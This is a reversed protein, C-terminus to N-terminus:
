VSLDLTLSLRDKISARKQSQVDEVNRCFVGFELSPSCAEYLRELWTLWDPDGQCLDTYRLFQAAQFVLQRPDNAPLFSCYQWDILVIRGGDGSEMFNHPSLDIHNVGMKFLQAMTPIAKCLVSLRGDPSNQILDDLTNYRYLDEIIVGNCKVTGFSRHEFYGYCIPIPLKYEAARLYHYVEALGYKRHKIRAEIRSLPFAKIVVSPHDESFPKMRLVCRRTSEKLLELDCNGLHDLTKLVGYLRDDLELENSWFSLAGRKQKQYYQCVLKTMVIM